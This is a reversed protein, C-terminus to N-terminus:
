LTYDMQSLDGTIGTGQPKTKPQENRAIWGYVAATWDIMKNKGVKWGNSEYYSFFKVAEKHGVLGMKLVFLDTVENITPKTFAKKSEKSEKKEKVISEKIANGESHTQMANADKNWRKFANERAKNSKADREDIRRQVSLSGFTSGDFIFLEFDNLISNVMETSTHLDFAIGECDMQLANANQYLDEIISWFVGYGAMGHKRLLNKIRKDSRANYDHSFYFTEKL